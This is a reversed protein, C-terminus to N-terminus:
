RQSLSLVPNMPQAVTLLDDDSCSRDFAEGLSYKPTWKLIRQAKEGNYRLPKFRAQLKAPVLIGPLKARTELFQTNIWWALGALLSMLPWLIPTMRPPNPTRQSLERIYTSRTPVPEDVINLTQGIAEEREAALVIAEACNEVYTMPMFANPGVCLWRSQSLEMGLLAHWLEGRGYVMGPRVITVQGSQEQEFKRYLEEQILKTQAYEDRYQPHRDLPATEDLLKGTGLAQYDYVSFTSIAILRDISSAIMADLLNETAIVTGAFQTYFDGSKVAILHIVADVGKLADAIGQRQRLDLRVQELNPHDHWSFKTPDSAPRIVAKVQHGRRLAEAVVYQGLFGSAGTILLKM